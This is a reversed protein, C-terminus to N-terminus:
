IYPSIFRVHIEFQLHKHSCILAFNRCFASTDSLYSFKVAYLRHLSIQISPNRNNIAHLVQYILSTDLCIYIWAQGNALM